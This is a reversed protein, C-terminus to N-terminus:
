VSALVAMSKSVVIATVLAPAAGAIAVATVAMVGVVILILNTASSFLALADPAKLSMAPTLTIATAAPMSTVLWCGICAVTVPAGVGLGVGAGVAEGVDIGVGGVGDGVGAM